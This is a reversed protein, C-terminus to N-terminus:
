ITSSGSTFAALLRRMGSLEIPASSSHTGLHLLCRPPNRPKKEFYFFPDSLAAAKNESTWNHRQENKRGPLHSLSFCIIKLSYETFLLHLLFHEILMFIVRKMRRQFILHLQHAHEHTNPPPPRPPPTPFTIVQIGMIGCDEETENGEWYGGKKLKLGLQLVGVICLSCKGDLFCNM